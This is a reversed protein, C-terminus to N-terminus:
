ASDLERGSSYLWGLAGVNTGLGMWDDRWIVAGARGLEQPRPAFGNNRSLSKSGQGHLIGPSRM